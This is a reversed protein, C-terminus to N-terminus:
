RRPAVVWDWTPLWTGDRLMVGQSNTPHIGELGSEHIAISTIGLDEVPIVEGRESSADGNADFWVAIGHLEAGTLFGDRNDDLSALARYGNERPIGFTYTGFMQRASAIRGSRQPDWVLFGTDPRVWPWHEGGGFGSLDFAVNSDPALLESITARSTFSFIIPSIAGPNDRDFEWRRKLGLWVTALFKKEEKSLRASRRSAARVYGWGAEPYIM